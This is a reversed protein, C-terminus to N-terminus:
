GQTSIESQFLAEMRIRHCSSRGEQALGSYSSQATVSELPGSRDGM